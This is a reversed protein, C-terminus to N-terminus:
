CDILCVYLCVSLYVFLCVSLFFCLRHSRKKLLSSTSDILLVSSYLSLCICLYVFLCVPLCIFLVVLYVSMCVSCRSLCVFLCVNGIHDRRWFRPQPTRVTPTRRTVRSCRPVWKTRRDTTQKDTQRYFHRDTGRETQGTTLGVTKSPFVCFVKSEEFKSKKKLKRWSKVKKFNEKRSEKYFMLVYSTPLKKTAV